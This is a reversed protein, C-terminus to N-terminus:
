LSLLRLSIGMTITRIDFERGTDNITETNRIFKDNCCRLRTTEMIIIYEHNVMIIVRIRYPKGNYHSM